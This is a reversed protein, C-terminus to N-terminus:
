ELEQLLLDGLAERDEETIRPPPRTTTTAPPRTTTTTTVTTTAPLPGIEPPQLAELIVDEIPAEAPPALQASPEGIGRKGVQDAGIKPGFPKWGYRYAGWWVLGAGVAAVIAVRVLAGALYSGIPRAETPSM